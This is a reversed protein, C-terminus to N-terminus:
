HQLKIHVAFFEGPLQFPNNTLITFHFTTKGQHLDVKSM